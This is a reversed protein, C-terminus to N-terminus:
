FLYSIHAGGHWGTRWFDHRGLNFSLDLRDTRRGFCVDYEIYDKTGLDPWEVYNILTEGGNTFNMVYAARGGMHWGDVIRFDLDISPSLELVGLNKIDINDGNQAVYDQASVWIYGATIGPRLMVFPSLEMDYVAGVTVGVWMNEFDRTANPSDVTNAMVGGNLVIGFGFGDIDTLAAIGLFAGDGDIDLASNRSNHGAYGGFIDLDVDGLKPTVSIRAVNTRSDIDALNDFKVDDSTHTFDFGVRVPTLDEDGGSRGIMPLIGTDDGFEGYYLMTGYRDPSENSTRIPQAVRRAHPAFNLARNTITHQIGVIMNATVTNAYPMLDAANAATGFIGAMAACMMYNKM